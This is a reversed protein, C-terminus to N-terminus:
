RDILRVAKKLCTSGDTANSVNCSYKAVVLCLTVNKTHAELMWQESCALKGRASRNLCWEM